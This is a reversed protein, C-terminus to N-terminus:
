SLEIEAGSAFLEVEDACSDCVFELCADLAAKMGQQFATDLAPKARDLGIKLVEAPTHGSEEKLARVEDYLERNLRITVTPNRQEYRERSPSVRRGKRKVVM